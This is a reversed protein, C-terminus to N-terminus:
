LKNRKDGINLPTIPHYLTITERFCKEDGVGTMLMWFATLVPLYTQYIIFNSADERHDNPGFEAQPVMPVNVMLFICGVKILKLKSERM